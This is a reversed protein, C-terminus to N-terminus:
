TANASLAEILPCELAGSEGCRAVMDSLAREMRRLEAIKTRIDALHGRALDRAEACGGARAEDALRLLGRVEELTFGLDRARRVFGLRRQEHRSYLRRGGATRAPQPLIGKREYFRIGEATLGTRKALAGIPLMPAAGDVEQRM